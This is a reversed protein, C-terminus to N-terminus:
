TEWQVSKHTGFAWFNKSCKATPAPLKFSSILVFIDAASIRDWEMNCLALRQSTWEVRRADKDTEGWIHVEEVVDNVIGIYSLTKINKTIGFVAQALRVILM